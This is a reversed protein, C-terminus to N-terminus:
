QAPAAEPAAPESAVAPEAAAEPASVPAAATAETCAWGWSTLKAVFAEAKEQCYSTDNAANWLTKMAVGESEKTYNVVCATSGAESEISVTRILKNHTCNWTNALASVPAVMVAIAICRLIFNM